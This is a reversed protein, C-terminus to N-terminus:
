KKVQALANNVAEILGKNTLSTTAMSAADIETSNAAKIADPIKAFSADSLGPTENHSLVEINAIKDGDMTVKVKIEGGYGQGVGIYENAALEPAAAEEAAPAAAFGYQVNLLEVCKRACEATVAACRAKRKDDGMSEIGNAKMFKTVSENCNVSGSVTTTFEYNDPNYTPFAMGCYWTFLENMLQKSVAPECLIGLAAACGGLSGCLTGVSYGAAGNCMMKVPIQNFPYGVEDALTGIIADFAGVACGGLAYFSAYGRAAVKEADLKTYPFPYAPAATGEAGALVTPMATLAAAGVLGKCGVRLFDRRSLDFNKM